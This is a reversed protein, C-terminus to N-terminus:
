ADMVVALGPQACGALLFALKASNCALDDVSGGLCSSQNAKPKAIYPTRLIAVTCSGACACVRRAMLGAVCFNM